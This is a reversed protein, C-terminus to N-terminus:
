NENNILPAQSSFMKTKWWTFHGIRNCQTLKYTQQLVHVHLEASNTTLDKTRIVVHKVKHCFNDSINM